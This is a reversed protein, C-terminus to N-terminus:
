LHQPSHQFVYVLTANAIFRISNQLILIYNSHKKKSQVEFTIYM